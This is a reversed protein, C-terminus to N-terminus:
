RSVSTLRSLDSESNSQQGSESLTDSINEVDITSTRSLPRPSQESHPNQPTTRPSQEPLVETITPKPNSMIKARYSSMKDLDVQKVTSRLHALVEILATFKKSKGEQRCKQHLIEGIAEQVKYIAKAEKKSLPVGRDCTLVSLASLLALDTSDAGTAVVKKTM